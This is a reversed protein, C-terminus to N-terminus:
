FWVPFFFLIVGDFRERLREGWVGISYLSLALIMSIVAFLLM